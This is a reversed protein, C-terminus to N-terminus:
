EYWPLKEFMEKTITYAKKLEFMKLIENKIEKSVLWQSLKDAEEKNNVEFAFVRMSWTTKFDKEIHVNLLGRSPTHNVFVSYETVIKQSAEAVKKKSVKRKEVGTRLVKDIIELGDADDYKSNSLDTNGKIPKLRKRNYYLM